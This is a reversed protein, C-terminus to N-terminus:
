EDRTPGEESLAGRRGLSSATCRVGDQGKGAVNMPALPEWTQIELPGLTWGAGEM